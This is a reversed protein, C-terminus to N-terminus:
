AKSWDGSSIRRVVTIPQAACHAIALQATAINWAYGPKIRNQEDLPCSSANDNAHAGHCALLYGCALAILILKCAPTEHLATVGINTDMGSRGDTTSASEKAVRNTCECARISRSGASWRARMTRCGAALPM